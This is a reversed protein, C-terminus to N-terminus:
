CEEDECICAIRQCEACWNEPQTYEVTDHEGPNRQAGTNYEVRKLGCVRCHSHFEMATGGVSWVGPNETCGGEGESTWEHDCNTDAGAAKMLADHDPEIEVAVLREDSDDTITEAMAKRAAHMAEAVAILAAPWDADNIAGSEIEKISVGAYGEPAIDTLSDIAADIAELDSEQYPGTISYWCDIVAGDIGWDGDRCWEETECKALAWAEDLSAAEVTITDSSGCEDRMDVTYMNTM